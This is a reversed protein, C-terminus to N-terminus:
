QWFCRAPAQLGFVKIGLMNCGVGYKRENSSAALDPGFCSNTV